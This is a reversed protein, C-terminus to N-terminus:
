LKTTRREDVVENLFEKRWEESSMGSHVVLPTGLSPLTVFEGVAQPEENCWKALMALFNQSVGLPTSQMIVKPLAKM